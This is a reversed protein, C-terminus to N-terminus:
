LTASQVRQLGRGCVEEASGQTVFGVFVSTASRSISRSSLLICARSPTIGQTLVVYMESNESAIPVYFSYSTSRHVDVTAPTCYNIPLESLSFLPLCFFFVCFSMSSGYVPNCFYDDRYCDKPFITLNLVAEFGNTTWGITNLYHTKNTQRCTGESGLKITAESFAFL